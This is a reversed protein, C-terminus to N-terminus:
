NRKMERKAKKIINHIIDLMKSQYQLTRMYNSMLNFMEKVFMELFDIYYPYVHEKLGQTLANGKNLNISTTSELIVTIQDFISELNNQRDPDNEGEDDGEFIQLIIKVIKLPLTNLIYYLLRSGGKGQKGGENITGIILNLIYKQYQEENKYMKSNSDYPFTAIVYKSLGKLITGYLNVCIVRKIIHVLIDMIITMAYNTSYNYERSMEFFTNIFPDTVNKYYNRVVNINDFNDVINDNKSDNILRFQYSSIIDMIQTFDSTGKKHNKLFKKWIAPYTKLDVSFDIINNKLKSSDTQNIVDIFVSDYIEVVSEKKSLKDVLYQKNQEIFKRLFDIKNEKNEKSLTIKNSYSEHDIDLNDLDSQIDILKSQMDDIRRIDSETHIKKSVLSNLEESLNNYTHLLQKTKIENELLQIELNEIQTNPLELNGLEQDGINTNLLPLIQNVNLGINKELESNLSFTWNLPYSKGILYFQHNLLYLCMPLLMNSYKPINNGYMDQSKKSFKKLLNDTLNSCVAYKDVMLVSLNELYNDLAYKLANKGFRNKYNKNWVIAKNDILLKVLSKNQMNIVYFLPTNGLNDRENVNAGSDILLKILNEDIKYCVQELSNIEYNMNIMKHINLEKTQGEALNGYTLAAIQSNVINVENEYNFLVDNYIEDLKTTFKIDKDKLPLIINNKILESFNKSIEPQELIDATIKNTKLTIVGKIFDILTSDVYKGILVLIFSKNTDNFSTFEQVENMVDDIANKYKEYEKSVKTSQIIKFMNKIIWRVISYKLIKMYTGLFTGIIPPISKSKDYDVPSLSGMSGILTPLPDNAINKKNRAFEKIKINLFEFNKKDPNYERVVNKVDFNPVNDSFDIFGLTPNVNGGVLPISHMFSPSNTYTIQPIFEMILIKKTEALTSGRLKDFDYMSPPFNKLKEFPKNIINKLLSTNDQKYVEDFNESHRFYSFCVSRASIKEIIELIGNFGSVVTVVSNYINDLDGSLKGIEKLIYKLEGGIQECLFKRNNDLYKEKSSFLESFRSFHNRLIPIQQQLLSCCLSIVLLNNIGKSIQEYVDDFKKDALSTTIRSSVTQLINLSDELIYCYAKFKTDFYLGKSNVSNLSLHDLKIPVPINLGKDMTIESITDWDDVTNEISHKSDTDDFLSSLVDREDKTPISNLSNSEYDPESEITENDLDDADNYKYNPDSKYFQGIAFIHEDTFPGEDYKQRMKELRQIETMSIRPRDTNSFTTTRVNKIIGCQGSISEQGFKDLKTQCVLTIPVGNREKHIGPYIKAPFDLQPSDFPKDPNEEFLYQINRIIELSVMKDKESQIAINPDTGLVDLNKGIVNCFLMCSEIVATCDETFDMLSNKETILHGISEILKIDTESKEKDVAREIDITLTDIARFPLIRNQQYENPGWGDHINPEIQLPILGEGVKQTIFENTSSKLNNIKNTIEIKKDGVEKNTAIDIILKKNTDIIEQIEYPFMEELNGLSKGIQLIFKQTEKDGFIFQHLLNQLINIKDNLQKDVVRGEKKEPILPRVKKQSVTVCEQSDGSIAYHLPSRYQSDLCRVDAGNDILIKVINYLQRKAALHIPFINNQDPSRVGAGERIALRVLQEKEQPTINSNKIIIHLISEDQENKSVMSIVNSLIFDQIKLFNGGSVESFLKLILESSTKREPILSKYLGITRPNAFSPNKPQPQYTSKDM